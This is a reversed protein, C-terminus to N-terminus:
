FNLRGIMYYGNWSLCQSWCLLFCRFIGVEYRGTKQFAGRSPCFGRAVVGSEAPKGHGPLRNIKEPVTFRIRKWDKAM